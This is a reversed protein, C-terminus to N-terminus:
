RNKKKKDKKGTRGETKQSNNRGTIQEIPKDQESVISKKICIYQYYVYVFAAYLPLALFFKIDSRLWPLSFLIIGVATVALALWRWKKAEEAKDM